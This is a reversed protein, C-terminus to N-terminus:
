TSLQLDTKAPHFARNWRNEGPSSSNTFITALRGDGTDWDTAPLSVRAAM